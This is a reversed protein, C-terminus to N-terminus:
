PNGNVDYKITIFSDIDLASPLIYTNGDTDVAMGGFFLPSNTTGWSNTWVPVGASTYKLTTINTGSIGSVYVGGSGDVAVANVKHCGTRVYRNTWLGVGNPFYQITLLGLGAVEDSYGGVIINGDKDVVIATAQDENNLSGNYRDVWQQSTTLSAVGGQASSPQ